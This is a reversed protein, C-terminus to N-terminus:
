SIWLMRSHKVTWAHAGRGLVIAWGGGNLPGGNWGRTVLAETSDANFGVASFYNVGSVGHQTKFARWRQLDDAFGGPIERQAILQIQDSALAGHIAHRAENRRGYDHLTAAQLLGASVLERLNGPGGPQTSDVVLARDSQPLVALYIATEHTVSRQRPAMADPPGSACGQMLVVGVTLWASLRM